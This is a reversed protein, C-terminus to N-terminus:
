AQTDYARKTPSPPYNISTASICEKHHTPLVKNNKIERRKRLWNRINKITILASSLVNLILATLVIEICYTALKEKSFNLNAVFPLAIVFYYICTLIENLAIYIGSITEKYAGTAFLYAPIQMFRVILTFSVSLALQLVPNTVFLIIMVISLRRIVFILYFMWSSIGEDKFEDFFTAYKKLFKEKEDPDIISNRKVIVYLLLM